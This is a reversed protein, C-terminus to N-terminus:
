GQSVTSRRSLMGNVSAPSVDLYDALKNTGAGEEGDEVSLHFLAKLYDEEHKSLNEEM